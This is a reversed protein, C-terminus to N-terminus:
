AEPMYELSGRNSHRNPCQSEQPKDHNGETGQPLHRTLAVDVEKWIWELENNVTMRGNSVM